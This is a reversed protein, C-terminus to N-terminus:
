IVLFTLIMLFILGFSLGVITIRLNGFTSRVGILDWGFLDNGYTLNFDWVPGARLKGGRDKHFFTSFQYADVNAALENLLIFDVFSPIDIVSPYGDVFSANSANSTNALQNFVDQIYDDQQSTKDEPKPVEYAFNVNDGDNGSM